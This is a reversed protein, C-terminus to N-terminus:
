MVKRLCERMEKRCRYIHGEVTRKNMGLLHAIEATNQEEHFYLTYVQASKEPMRAIRCREVDRLYDADIRDEVRYADAKNLGEVTDMPCCRALAHHRADDIMMRRAMIFLLSKATQSNIMDVGMIKLFLDHTMDEAKQFANAINANRAYSWFYARVEQAYMNYISAVAEMKDTTVREM